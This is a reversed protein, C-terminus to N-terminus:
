TVALRGAISDGLEEEGVTDFEQVDSAWRDLVTRIVRTTRMTEGDSSLPRLADVYWLEDIRCVDLGTLQELM